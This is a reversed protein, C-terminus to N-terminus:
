TTDIDQTEGLQVEQSKRAKTQQKLKDHVRKLMTEFNPEICFVASVTSAKSRGLWLRRPNSSFPPFPPLGYCSRAAMVPSPPTIRRSSAQKELVLSYSSSLADM